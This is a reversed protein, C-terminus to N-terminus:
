FVNNKKKCLIPIECQRIVDNMTDYLYLFLAPRVAQGESKM